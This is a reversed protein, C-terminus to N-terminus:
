EPEPTGSLDPYRRRLLALFPVLAPNGNSQRWYAAFNLRTPGQGEHVERYVVQDLRVGTAGELMLLAGYEASVLTLLRDLSSEHHLVRQPGYSGLHAILLRELEPGPGNQPILLPEGALDAWHVIDRSALRHQLHLAVIVRESWLPLVRDGWGSRSSTTIAIDIATNTLACLLQDHSGDVTQVEVHPFARHHELLTAFMNGTSLSAYIGIALLGDEGRSRTKLKRLAADTEALIHRASALFERGALTPRTGGNTREFLQAGVRAEMDRLRRSLTSQRVNLAEAAQRLSRHQSAIIAWRLDRFEISM